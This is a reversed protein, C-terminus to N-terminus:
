PLESPRAAPINYAVPVRAIVTTGRGPESEVDLEGGVLAVRERMGMIGLRGSGAPAVAVSEFGAGDDEVVATARGDFRSVVVSVQRAGAHKIVNTLAEQVVRYLVTEVEPPLRGSDLGTTQLDATLGSRASWEAVLHGLAASLGLDDLATPRLRVGLAHVEKGLADAVRQVDGLRDEAAPTLPGATRVARVALSLGALLQGVSDHLDRAIRRREAEQATALRRSLDARRAIEAQLEATRDAVRRELDENARRLAEDVQAREILDAAQRAVAEFAALQRDSPRHPRRWHTSIAGLLHGTRSLLPTTQVARIGSRRYAERDGGTVEGSGETDEVVVRGGTRLFRSCSSSGAVDVRDWFAASDPHFGRHAVLRLAPGRGPEAPAMVQLSACDAALATAAIEAVETLVAAADAGALLRASLAHFQESASLQAALERESAQLAVDSRRRDILHAALLAYLDALRLERETPTHPVRFHVTLVGQLEGKRTTLPTSIASRYGLSAATPAHDAFKPEGAIDVAVVREVTRIAAACTSHFDRDIFPIADLMAPDFGRFASYRLGQVQPDYLQVTGKDAGHLAIATDLVDALAAPLDTASILRDALDHLRTMAALQDALAEEARTPDNV